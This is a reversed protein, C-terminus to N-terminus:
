AVGPRDHARIPAAQVAVLARALVSPTHRCSRPGTCTRSHLCVACAHAFPRVEAIEDQGKKEVESVKQLAADLEHSCINAKEEASLAVFQAKASEAKRRGRAPKRDAAASFDMNPHVRRLYAELM